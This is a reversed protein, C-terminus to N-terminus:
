VRIYEMDTKSWKLRLVIYQDRKAFLIDLKAFYTEVFTAKKAEMMTYMLEGIKM